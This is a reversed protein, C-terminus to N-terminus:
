RMGRNYRRQAARRQRRKHKRAREERRIRANVKMRYLGLMADISRSPIPKWYEPTFTHQWVGPSIERSEHQSNSALMYTLWMSDMAPNDIIPGNLPQIM